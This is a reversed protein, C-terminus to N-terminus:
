LSNYHEGWEVETAEKGNLERISALDRAFAEPGSCFAELHDFFETRTQSRLLLRRVLSAHPLGKMVRAATQKLKGLVRLEWDMEEELLARYTQFLAVFDSATPELPIKGEYLDAMQGFLWPNHLAGRGVAIGDVGFRELRDIADAPTLVDGNGIVPIKGRAKAEGILNWDAYGRYAQARTRGHIVFASAGEGEAVEQSEFLNIEQDSWGLRVKVTVPISVGKVVESIIKRLNGLDRLLGSGGGKKVVKPAPCGCNIEVFDAGSEEVMRAGWAMRSADGGFIQVTFPREEEAFALQSMTKPNDRTLGEVSIFESVLLGTRGGSLRSILRRFSIDTVGSMPALYINPHILKEGVRYGQMVKRARAILDEAGELPIPYGTKKEPEADSVPIFDQSM